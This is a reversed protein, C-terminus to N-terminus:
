IQELVKGIDGNICISRDRIETPVYAERVNVCAYVAKPNEATMKWFPYKMMLDNNETITFGQAEVTRGVADENDYTDNHCPVSCQFLGYDGQTYFIRRKDFGAAASLGSGAGIIVADVDTLAARLQNWKVSCTDISKNTLSRLLM